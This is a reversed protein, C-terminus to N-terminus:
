GSSTKVNRHPGLERKSGSDDECSSTVHDSASGGVEGVTPRRGGPAGIRRECVNARSRTIVVATREGRRGPCRAHHSAPAPVETRARGGRSTPRRRPAGRLCRCGGPQARRPRLCPVLFLTMPILGMVRCWGRAVDITAPDKMRADSREAASRRASSRRWTAAPYDHRRATKADVSPPVTVTVKTCCAPRREAPSLPM